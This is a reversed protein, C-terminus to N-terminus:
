SPRLLGDLGVANMRGEVDMGKQMRIHGKGLLIVCLDAHM